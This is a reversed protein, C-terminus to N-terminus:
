NQGPPALTLTTAGAPVEHESTSGSPWRVRIRRAPNSDPNGFYCAPSSQSYYGSGAYVELTETSGDAFEESVRAGVATPNGAPGHLLVRLPRRGAVGRNRFVLTTDNNRTV